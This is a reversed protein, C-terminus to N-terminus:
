LTVMLGLTMLLYNEQKQCIVKLLNEVVEIVELLVVLDLLHHTEILLHEEVVVVVEVEVELIIRDEVLHVVLLTALM